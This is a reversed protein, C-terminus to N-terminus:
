EETLESISRLGEGQLRRTWDSLKYAMADAQDYGFVTWWWDKSPM